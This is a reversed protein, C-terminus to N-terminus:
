VRAFIGFKVGTNKREREIATEIWSTINGTENGEDGESGPGAKRGEDKAIEPRFKCQRNKM